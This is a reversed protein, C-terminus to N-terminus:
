SLESTAGYDRRVSIGILRTFNPIITRIKWVTGYQVMSFILFQELDCQQTSSTNLDLGPQSVCKNKTRYWVAVYM